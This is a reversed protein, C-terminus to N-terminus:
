QRRNRPRLLFPASARATPRCRRRCRACPRRVLRSTPCRSSSGSSSRRDAPPSVRPQPPRKPWSGNPAVIDRTYAAWPSEVGPALTRTSRGPSPPQGSRRETASASAAASRAGGLGQLRRIGDVFGADPAHVNLLRARSPGPNRFGHRVGPPASMWTGAGARVLREGLTFEVEGDLVFFSDVEGAHGHPEVNFGPDVGIEIASLQPEHGVIALTRHEREFREGAGAVTVSADAASRGGDAPPDDSDFGEREGRLHALFGTSPAHFNLWRATSDSENDFTHVVSPPVLVFTGAPARVPEAEPGLRFRLGGEVICFLM